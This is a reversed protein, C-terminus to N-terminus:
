AQRNSVDKRVVPLLLLVCALLSAAERWGFSLRNQKLALVALLGVGITALVVLANLCLALWWAWSRSRWLGVASLLWIASIVTLVSASVPIMGVNISSANPLAHLRASILLGGLTVAVALLQSVGILQNVVLLLILPRQQVVRFLMHAFLGRQDVAKAAVLQPRVVLFLFNLLALTFVAIPVSLNPPLKVDASAFGMAIGAVGLINLSLARKSLPWNDFTM